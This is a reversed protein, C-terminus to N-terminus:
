NAGLIFGIISWRLAAAARRYRSPQKLGDVSGLLALAACTLVVAVSARGIWAIWSDPAVDITFDLADVDRGGLAVQLAPALLIVSLIAAWALAGLQNPKM